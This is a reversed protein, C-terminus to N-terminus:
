SAVEAKGATRGGALEDLTRQMGTRANAAIRRFAGGAFPALLRLVGQLRIDAVYEIRTGTPTAAFSIDDVARVGSGSGALVVRRAPELATIEYEMPAVRGGMRIGLRYRAGVEVPGDDVRVSTVVGPDWREANAFDAVFAFAEDIGLRTEIHERLLPM